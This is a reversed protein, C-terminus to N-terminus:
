SEPSCQSATKSTFEIFVPTFCSEIQFDTEEDEVADFENEVRRECENEGKEERRGDCFKEM